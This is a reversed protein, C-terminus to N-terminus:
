EIGTNCIAHLASLLAECHHFPSHTPFPTTLYCPSFIDLFRRLPELHTAEWNSPRSLTNTTGNSLIMSPSTFITPSRINTSAIHRSSIGSTFFESVVGYSILSVFVGVDPSNFNWHLFTLLGTSGGLCSGVFNVLIWYDVRPINQRLVVWQTIGTITGTLIIFALPVPLGKIGSIAGIFVGTLIGVTTMCVWSIRFRWGITPPENLSHMM